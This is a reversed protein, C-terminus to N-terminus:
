GYGTDIDGGGAIDIAEETLWLRYRYRRRHYIDNARPLYLSAAQRRRLSAAVVRGLVGQGAEAAGPTLVCACYRAGEAHTSYEYVPLSLLRYTRDANQLSIPVPCASQPSPSPIYSPHQHAHVSTSLIKSLYKITSSHKAQSINAPDIIIICINQPNVTYTRHALQM